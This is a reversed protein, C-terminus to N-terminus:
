VETETFTTDFTSEQVAAMFKIGSTKIRSGGEEYIADRLSVRWNDKNIARCVSCGDIM